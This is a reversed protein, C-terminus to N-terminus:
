FPYGIAFNFIPNAVDFTWRESEDEISPDHFPAALDFRIVFGQIDVRMGVGGGIGLENIFNSGFKGGPLGDDSTTWVNGADAFIAGKVYNFIPFRYEANAELRM